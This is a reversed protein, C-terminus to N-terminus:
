TRLNKVTAWSLRHQPSPGFQRLAEIHKPAQYGKHDKFGYQPYQADLEIMLRDRRTKALISAAAISLSRSDGKILLTSPIELRPDRNGDILGHTAQPSLGQVAQRMGKLTAQLINLEDIEPAEIDVVCYALAKSKILPELQIRAAESLTKSDRIGSPIDQPNLIVAAVCLPGACPGRGAEDVGCVLGQHLSEFHLDPHLQAKPPM